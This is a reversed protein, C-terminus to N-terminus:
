AKKKQQNSLWQEAKAQADPELFYNGISKCFKEKQPLTGLMARVLKGDTNYFKWYQCLEFLKEDAIVTVNYDSILKLTYNKGQNSVVTFEMNPNVSVSRSGLGRNLTQSRIFHVLAGSEYTPKEERKFFSTEEACKYHVISGTRELYYKKNKPDRIIIDGKKIDGPLNQKASYKEVNININDKKLNIAM